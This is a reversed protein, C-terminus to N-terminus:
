GYAKTDPRSVPKKAKIEAVAAEVYNILQEGEAPKGRPANDIAGRYVLTGDRDVSFTRPRLLSIDAPTKIPFDFTYGIDIGDESGAAPVQLVDVGWTSTLLDWGIRYYPELVIDDGV